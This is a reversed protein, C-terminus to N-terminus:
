MLAWPLEVGCFSLQSVLAMLRANPSCAWWTGTLEILDIIPWGRAAAPASSITAHASASRSPNTAGVM